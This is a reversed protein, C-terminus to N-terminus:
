QAATVTQAFVFLILSAAAFAVVLKRQMPRAERKPLDADRLMREVAAQRRMEAQRERAMQALFDFQHNM